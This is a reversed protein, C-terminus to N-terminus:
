PRSAVVATKSRELYKALDEDRGSLVTFTERTLAAREWLTNSMRLSDFRCNVVCQACYTCRDAYFRMVFRKNPRDIPIIEIADAPCDKMCLMCGTCKTAEFLVTGRLREPVARLEFPYKGTAPKRFISRLTEGLMSGITMHQEKEFPLEAGGAVAPRHHRPRQVFFV